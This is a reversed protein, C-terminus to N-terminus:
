RPSASSSASCPSCRACGAPSSRRTHPASADGTWDDEPAAGSARGTPSPASQARPGRHGGSGGHSPVPRRPHARHPGGAQRGGARPHHARGHAGARAARRLALPRRADLRHRPKRDARRRPHPGPRHGPRPRGVGAAAPWRLAREPSPRPPRRPRGTRPGRHGPAAARRAASARVGAPARRQAAGHPHGAPQVAPVRVRDAPEPRRRAGGRGHRRRRGRGPPVHRLDPHGPVRPHADADVQGVGLPGHDRRLRGGPRRPRHGAAGRGRDVRDLLDQPGPVPRPDAGARLRRRRGAEDAELPALDDLTAASM